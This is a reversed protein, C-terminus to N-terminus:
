LVLDVDVVVVLDLVLLWLKLRPNDWSKFMSGEVGHDAPVEVDCFMEGAVPARELGPVEFDCFMEGAVPAREIRPVKFDCFM